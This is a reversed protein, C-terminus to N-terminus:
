FESRKTTETAPATQRLMLDQAEYQVPVSLRMQPLVSVTVAKGAAPETLLLTEESLLIRVTDGDDTALILDNNDGIERIMGNLVTGRVYLATIQPPISRTQMGNSYVDVTIGATVCRLPVTGPNVRILETSDRPILLFYPDEGYVVRDITGTIKQLIIGDAYLTGDEVSSDTLVTVMDGEKPDGDLKWETQDSLVTRVTENGTYLTFGKETVDAIMGTIAEAGASTGLSIMLVAAAICLGPSKQNM